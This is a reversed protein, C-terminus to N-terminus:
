NQYLNESTDPYYDLPDILILIMGSMGRSLASVKGKLQFLLCFLRPKRSNTTFAWKIRDTYDLGHKPIHFIHISRCCKEPNSLPLSKHNNICPYLVGKSGFELLGTVAFLLVPLKHETTVWRVYGAIIGILYVAEFFSEGPAFGPSHALFIM